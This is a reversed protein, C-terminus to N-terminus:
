GASARLQLHGFFLRAALELTYATSIDAPRRCPIYTVIIVVEPTVTTARPEKSGMTAFFSLAM